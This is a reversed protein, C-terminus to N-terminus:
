TFYLRSSYYVRGYRSVAWYWTKAGSHSVTVDVVGTASTIVLYRKNTALTQLITGANFTVSAPTTATVGGGVADALWCDLLSYTGTPALMNTHVTDALEPEVALNLAAAWDPCLRDALERIFDAHARVEDDSRSLPARLQALATAIQLASTEIRQSSFPGRGLDPGFFETHRQNM